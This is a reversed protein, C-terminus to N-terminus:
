WTKIAAQLEAHKRDLYGTKEAIPAPNSIMLDGKLAVSKKNKQSPCQISPTQM